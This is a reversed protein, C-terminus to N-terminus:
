GTVLRPVPLEEFGGNAVATVNGRVIGVVLSVLALQLAPQTATGPAVSEGLETSGPKSVAYTCDHFRFTCRSTIDPSATDTPYKPEFPVCRRCDRFKFWVNRFAASTAVRGNGAREAVLGIEGPVGKSFMVSRSPVPM